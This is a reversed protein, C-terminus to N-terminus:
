QGKTEVTAIVTDALPWSSGPQAPSPDGTPGAFRNVFGAVEFEFVVQGASVTQDDTFDFHDDYSEDLWGAGDSFGGLSQKQLLITRIIATYERVLKLTDARDSAGVFVGVAISFFARFSGDGEQLPSQRGSLGPSVVVVAPLNNAAERDLQDSKLYAAPLDHNLPDGPNAIQGAQLEYEELYTAFWLDLTDIVAQELQDGITISDFISLYGEV